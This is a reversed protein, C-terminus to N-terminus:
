RGVVLVAADRSHTSTRGTWQTQLKFYEDNWKTKGRGPAVLKFPIQADTLFDEWVSCDRMISGAGKWREPGSSGFWRRQRADEVTVHVNGPYDKSLQIIRFIAEHIMMTAVTVLRKEYADWVAFGTKTGPDIGVNM